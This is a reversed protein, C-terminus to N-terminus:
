LEKDTFCGSDKAKKHLIIAVFGCLFLLEGLMVTDSSNLSFLHSKFSPEESVPFMGLVGANM